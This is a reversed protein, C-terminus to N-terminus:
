VEKSLIAGTTLQDMAIGFSGLFTMSNKIFNLSRGILVRNVANLEEISQLLSVLQLRVIHFTEDGTEDALRQLGVEGTIKNEASFEEILRIREDEILTLTLVITDKEKSINEVGKADLNILCEKERQLMDLLQRYGKIQEILINKITHITRM